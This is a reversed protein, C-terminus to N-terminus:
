VASRQEADSLKKKWSSSLTYRCILHSTRENMVGPIEDVRAYMYLLEKIPARASPGKSRSKRM